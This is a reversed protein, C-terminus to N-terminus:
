MFYMNSIGVHLGYLVVLCSYYRYFVYIKKFLLYVTCKKGHIIFEYFEEISKQVKRRSQILCEFGKKKEEM